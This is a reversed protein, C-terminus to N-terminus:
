IKTNEMQEIRKRHQCEIEKIKIKVKEEYNSMVEDHRKQVQTMAKKYGEEIRKCESLFFKEKKEAHEKYNIASKRASQYKLKLMDINNKIEKEQEKLANNEIRLTEEIERLNKIDDKMTVDKAKIDKIEAVWTTMVQAMLNREDEIDSENQKLREELQEIKLKRTLLEEHYTKLKNEIFKSVFQERMKFSSFITEKESISHKLKKVEQEKQLLTVKYREEFEKNKERYQEGIARLEQTVKQEMEERVEKIVMERIKQLDTEEELTRPSLNLKGSVQRQNRLCEEFRIAQNNLKELLQDREETIKDFDNIKRIKREKEQVDEELRKIRKQLNDCEKEKGKLCDLQNSLKKVLDKYQYLEKELEHKANVFTVDKKMRNEITQQDIKKGESLELELQTIKDRFINKETLLTECRSKLGENEIQVRTIKLKVEDSDDRKLKKNLVSLQSDLSSIRTLLENREMITNDYKKKWSEQSIEMQAIKLRTDDLETQYESLKKHDEIALQCKEELQLNDDELQSIRQLHESCHDPLLISIQQNPDANRLEKLAEDKAREIEQHIKKTYEEKKRKESSLDKQLEMIKNKYTECEKNLKDIFKKQTELEYELKEIDRQYEELSGYKEKLTRIEEKHENILQEKTGCVDIYLEKVHDLEKQTQELQVTLQVIDMKAEERVREVAKAHIELYEKNYKEIVEKEQISTSEQHLKKLTEQNIAEAEELKQELNSKEEKLIEYQKKVDNLHGSLKQIQADAKLAKDTLLLKLELELESVRKAYRATEQRCSDTIVNAKALEKEKQSLTNELRTIEKRKVTQGALCRQLEGRLKNTIDDSPKSRSRNHFDGLKMQRISDSEEDLTTALTDYQATENKAIELKNQLDQINKLMDEKEQSLIKIQAQLQLIQQDNNTAMLNRCQAQSKELAQALRNTTDGKELILAEHARRIDALKHELATYSSEKTNLKDTLVDIQTQMNKIEVAHKEQAQKLFKENIKDSTQLAHVRELVTVKQQLDVVSDKASALEETMNQNTTELVANKEKLSAMQGQLDIIEAKADILAHQAQNRSINSREVEAQLLVIKRSFQDMETEKQHQLKQLDETLRKIEKMRITYLVELQEKSSYETTKYITNEDLMKGNPSIKFCHNMEESTINDGGGFEHIQKCQVNNGYNEIYGNNAYHKEHNNYHNAPTEYNYLYNENFTYGDEAHCELDRPCSSSNPLRALEYSTEMTLNHAEIPKKNKHPTLTQGYLSVDRQVDFTSLPIDSETRYNKMTDHNYNVSNDVHDYAGYDNCLQASTQTKFPLRQKTINTHENEKASRQYHSSNASSIDNDDDDDDDDDDDEDDDNELDDFANTLLDNIEENRRKLDEQEEDEELRQKSTNLQLSESGQFLSIGPGEM